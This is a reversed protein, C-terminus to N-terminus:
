HRRVNIRVQATATTYDRIDAPTFTVSLTQGLGRGLVTGAPPTYVFTGPVSATANLQSSGLATGVRIDAPPPWTIVPTARTV